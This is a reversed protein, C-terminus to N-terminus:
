GCVRTLAAILADYLDASRGDFNWFLLWCIVLFTGLGFSYRDVKVKM